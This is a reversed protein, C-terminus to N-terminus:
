DWSCSQVTCSENKYCLYKTRPVTHCEPLQFIKGTSIDVRHCSLPEKFKNYSSVHMFSDTANLLVSEQDFKVIFDDLKLGRNFTYQELIKYDSSTNVSVLQCNKM